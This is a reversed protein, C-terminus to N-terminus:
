PRLEKLVQSRATSDCRCTFVMRGAAFELLQVAFVSVASDLDRNQREPSPPAPRLRREKRQKGGRGKGPAIVDNADIAHALLVLELANFGSQSQRVPRVPKPNELTVETVSNGLLPTIAGIWKDSASVAFLQNHMMMNLQWISGVASPPNAHDGM